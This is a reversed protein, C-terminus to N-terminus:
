LVVSCHANLYLGTISIMDYRSQIHTDTEIEQDDQTTQIYLSTSSCSSRFKIFLLNNNHVDSILVKWGDILSRWRTMEREREIM